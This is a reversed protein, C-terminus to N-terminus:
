QGRAQREEHRRTKEEWSAASFERGTSKLGRLLEAEVEASVPQEAHAIILNALYEELSQGARLAEAEAISKIEDPLSITLTPM